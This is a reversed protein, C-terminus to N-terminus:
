TAALGTTCLFGTTRWISPLSLRLFDGFELYFPGSAPSYTDSVAALNLGPVLMELALAIGDAPQDIRQLRVSDRGAAWPTWTSMISVNRM